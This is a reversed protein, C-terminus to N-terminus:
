NQSNSFISYDPPNKREFRYFNYIRVLKRTEEYDKVEVNEYFVSVQNVQRATYADSFQKLAGRVNTQRARFFRRNYKGM